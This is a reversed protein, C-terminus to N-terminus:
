PRFAGRKVGAMMSPSILSTLYKISSVSTMQTIVVGVEADTNALLDRELVSTFLNPLESAVVQPGLDRLARGDAHRDVDVFRTAVGSGGLRYV